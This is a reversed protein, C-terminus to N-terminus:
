VGPLHQAAVGWGALDRSGARKLLKKADKVTFTGAKEIGDLEKWSIPAAVPAGPRARASYPMIATSGRQNRLWDIFIRGKRKAKSMTATFRDPELEALARAFREAFDKVANWDAGPTLPVVVHIGKGGTLMPFSALGIESIHRRLDQAANKVVDFGIAEDPDLDFVMRDPREVDEVRAGWGHFEITGMQVCALIGQTDEVYLYDDPKGSKEVIPIHHVAPGFSGSDHKQFFCQRARGQPCRVLSAPRHALWPLMIAGVQRYYDALEGKTIKAEPFIVRDPNTIRIDDDRSGDGKSVPASALIEPVVDDPMKDERLGIFSAHRLRDDSTFEAFAIEAVLKPTVWNAGRAEVRPVEVPPTKRALPRLKGELMALTATDFGTGVKGAYALRGARNQALLLSAFPRAKASSTTWGVIVFEQRRTCKVKLWNKTRRGAYRADVRKCIIGEQAAGCMAEYLKEGAGVVHDAYRIAGDAPLLGLLRQKRAINPLPALDEGDLELLDFGFLVFGDSGETLAKQLASFSPNGDRDMVVIEGDILCPPLDLTAAAEVLPAFRDSWDLGARTSIRAKDGNAALLCRYGDFKIEHMWETGTPVHDVLTALQPPRFAPLRGPKASKPKARVTASRAENMARTFAKGRKGKLSVAPAGAAIQAMSRGTEVSTLVTEVLEDSGGAHADDIKRLLWNERKEGARANMRVLLWEGKMRKGHLTFHLHGDKLTQRPDKGPVPEWTGEDWLMVTGGGYEGKPINGEFGGYSLPHDETRVALRKDDPNLSPGRTVAWSKLVGDLELRFDYHLRTAAHKQVVFSNGAARGPTGAPEPTKKFDRRANYDKLPDGRRAM